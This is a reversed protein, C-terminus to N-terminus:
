TGHNALYKTAYDEFSVAHSAMFEDETMKPIGHIRAVEHLALCQTDTMWGRMLILMDCQLLISISQGLALAYTERIDTTATVDYKSFKKFFQKALTAMPVSTSTDSNPLAILVKM